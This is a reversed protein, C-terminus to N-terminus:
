NDKYPYCNLREQSNSHKSLWTANRLKSLSELNFFVFTEQMGSLISLGPLIFPFPFWRCNLVSKNVLPFVSSTLSETRIWKAHGLDIQFVAQHAIPSDMKGRQRAGGQIFGGSDHQASQPDGWGRARGPFTSRSLFMWLWGEAGMWRESFM